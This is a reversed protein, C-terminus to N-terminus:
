GEQDLSGCIKWIFNRLKITNEDGLNGFDPLSKNKNFAEKILLKQVEIENM